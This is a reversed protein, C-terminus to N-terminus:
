SPVSQCPVRRSSTSESWQWTMRQSPSPLPTTKL